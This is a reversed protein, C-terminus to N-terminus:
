LSLMISDLYASLHKNSDKWKKMPIIYSRSESCNSQFPTLLCLFNLFGQGRHAEFAVYSSAERFFHKDVEGQVGSPRETSETQVPASNKKKIGFHTDVLLFSFSFSAM